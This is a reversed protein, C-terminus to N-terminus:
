VETFSLLLYVHGSMPSGLHCEHYLNVQLLRLLHLNQGQTRFIGQLLFHCGVGTNNGPFDWSCFLRAIQLGHPRLSNLMVKCSYLSLLLFLCFCIDSMPINGFYTISYFSKFCPIFYYTCSVGSVYFYVCMQLQIYM